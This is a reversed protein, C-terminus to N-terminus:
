VEYLIITLINKFARSVVSLLFASRREGILRLWCEHSWIEGTAGDFVLAEDPGHTEAVFFCVDGM